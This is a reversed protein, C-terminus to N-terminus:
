FFFLRSLFSLIWFLFVFFIIYFVLKVSLIFYILGFFYLKSYEYVKLAQNKEIKSEQAKIEAQTNKKKIEFDVSTDIRFKELKDIVYVIPKAIFNPTKDVVMKGLDRISSSSSATAEAASAVSMDYIPILFFLFLFAIVIKKSFM